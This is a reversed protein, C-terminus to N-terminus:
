FLSEVVITKAYDGYKLEFQGSYNAMWKIKIRRIDDSDLYAKIPLKPDFWWKTRLAGNFYYEKEIKPKIFIDGVITNVTDTVEPEIHKVVLGGAINNDLDDEMENSYYEVATVELIGPTSISDVAEVRWCINDEGESVEQLYFKAYRKFYSLTYKNKPM